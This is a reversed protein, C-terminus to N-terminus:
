TLRYKIGKVTILLSPIFLFLRWAERKIDIYQYNETLNFIMLLQFASYLGFCFISLSFAYWKWRDRHKEIEYKTRKFLGIIAMIGCYFMSPTAIFFIIAGWDIGSGGGLGHGFSVELSRPIAFVSIFTLFFLVIMWKIESYWKMRPRINETFKADLM